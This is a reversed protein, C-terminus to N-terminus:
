QNIQSSQISNDLSITEIDQPNIGVVSMSSELDSIERKKKLKRDISVGIFAGVALLAAAGAAIGAVAVGSLGAAAVGAGGAGGAAAGEVAVIAVGAEAAGEATLAAIGLGVAASGAVGAAVAAKKKDRRLREM